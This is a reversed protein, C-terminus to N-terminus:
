VEPDLHLAERLMAYLPRHGPVIDKSKLKDLDFWRVEADLDDSPTPRGFMYCARFLATKICDKESRYRWDDVVRSGIYEVDGVEVGMEERVERTADIELSPSDPDSFGGPFRFLRDSSKRGLLLKMGPQDLVAVDVAQYATPYRGQSAWIVGARFEPSNRASSRAIQKRVESGSMFTEQVLEETPFRGSYHSIFSDRGGYLVVSQGPSLLDIIQGDLADSWDDDYPRDKIYLVNVHPFEDLIMQKRAEFDLPNSTSVPLPALGLFILVKEHNDCVHQILDLHADHLEHVQFRGVLVGVDYSTRAPQV